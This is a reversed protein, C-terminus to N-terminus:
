EIVGQDSGGDRMVADQFRTVIKAMCALQKDSLARGKRQQAIISACFKREWDSIGEARVIIPAYHSLDPLQAAPIGTITRSPNANLVV